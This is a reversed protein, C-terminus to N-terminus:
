NRRVKGTQLEVPRRGNITIAKEPLVEKGQVGHQTGGTRNGTNGKRYIRKM